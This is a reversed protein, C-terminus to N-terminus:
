NKSCGNASLIGCACGVMAIAWPWYGATIRFPQQLQRPRRRRARVRARSFICDAGRASGLFALRNTAGSPKEPGFSLGALAMITGDPSFCISGVEFDNTLYISAHLPENAKDWLATEWVGVFRNRDEGGLVFFKGNPSFAAALPMKNGPVLHFKERGSALDWVKASNTEQYDKIAELTAGRTVLWKGDPSVV